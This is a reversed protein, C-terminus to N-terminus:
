AKAGAETKAVFDQLEAKTAKDAKAQEMGLTVAYLRWEAVAASDTPKEAPKPYDNDGTPDATQGSPYPDGIQEAFGVWRHVEDAPVEIITGPPQTDRWFTTKMKVVDGDAM